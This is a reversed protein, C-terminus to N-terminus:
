CDFPRARGPRDSNPEFLTVWIGFAAVSVPDIGAETGGAIM